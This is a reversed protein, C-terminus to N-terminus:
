FLRKLWKCRHHLYDLFWRTTVETATPYLQLAVIENTKPDVAGYLWVKKRHLRIMKEDISLQDASVTLIPQLEAKHVWNHIAVHSRQVGLEGLFQSTDRLSM